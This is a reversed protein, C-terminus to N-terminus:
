QLASAIEERCTKFVILLSFRYRPGKCIISWLRSDTIFKLDGNVTYKVRMNIVSGLNRVIELTLFLLKLILNLKKNIMTLFTSHSHKNYKYCMNASEKNGFCTLTSSIVYKDEFKSPLIILEIGKSVFQIKIFHKIHNIESDIYSLLTNQTYCRTLRAAYLPHAIM